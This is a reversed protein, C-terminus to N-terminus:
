TKLNNAENRSVTQRLIVHYNSETENEITKKLCVTAHATLSNTERRSM